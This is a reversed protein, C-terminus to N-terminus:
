DKQSRLFLWVASATFAGATPAILYIWLSQMNGSLLAPAMSRVPNMSAGCIPGAFIAELGITSGIAIGAIVGTEKSGQSVNLIVTMLFFSLIFELVFSQFDSGAPLTSGLTPNDPFLSKLIVTACLAGSAQMVIYPLLQRGPFLRATFFAITVAPNFHAGSIEGFTYIMALVILGFTMAIGLHGIAGHTQQDIVIAGTGCFVIGFTGLFEATYKRIM